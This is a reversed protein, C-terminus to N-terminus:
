RVKTNDGRTQETVKNRPVGADAEWVGCLHVITFASLAHRTSPLHLNLCSAPLLSPPPTHAHVCTGEARDTNPPLPLSPPKLTSDPTQDATRRSCKMVGGCGARVEVATAGCVQMCTSTTSPTTSQVPPPSLVLTIVMQTIRSGPRVSM